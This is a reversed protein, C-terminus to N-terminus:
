SFTAETMEGRLISYVTCGTLGIVLCCVGAVMAYDKPKGHRKMDGWFSRKAQNGRHQVHLLVCSLVRLTLGVLFFPPAGWFWGSCSRETMTDVDRLGYNLTSFTSDSVSFNTAIEVDYTFGTQEPLCRYESVVMSETFFRTPSLVGCLVENVPAIVFLLHRFFSLSLM